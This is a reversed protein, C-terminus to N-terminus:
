GCWPHRTTWDWGDHAALGRFLEEIGEFLEKLTDVEHGPSTSRFRAAVTLTAAPRRLPTGDRVDQYRPVLFRYRSLRAASFM